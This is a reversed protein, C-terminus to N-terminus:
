TDEFCETYKIYMYEKDQQKLILREVALLFRFKLSFEDYSPIKNQYKCTFIYYKANLILFNIPDLDDEIYGFFIVHESFEFSPKLLYNAINEWLLHVHSCSWFLHNITEDQNNCFACAANDAIGIRCLYQNVGIIRNLFRFQFYQIKTDRVSTYILSYIKKWNWDVTPYQQEWKAIARPTTVKDRVLNSYVCRNSKVASLFTIMRQQNVTPFLPDGLCSKWHRPIAAVIGFYELYSFHEINYTIIFDQYQMICGDEKFLKKVCYADAKFLKDNYIIRNDIRIFSNNLILQNGYDGDPINYNYHAWAQCVDRIFVNSINNVDTSLYNCSFLLKCGHRKLFYHFLVKWQRNKDDLYLKVWTTKLSKAFSVIDIMGLGGDQKNNLLTSRKIKDPKNNWIFKHFLRNVQQLFDVPPTPLVTLVYVLQSVAFTKIIIIKGIPTLDRM